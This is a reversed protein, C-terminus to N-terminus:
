PMIFKCFKEGAAPKPTFGVCFYKSNGILPVLFMIMFSYLIPSIYVTFVLDIPIKALAALPGRFVCFNSKNPLFQDLVPFFFVKSLYPTPIM